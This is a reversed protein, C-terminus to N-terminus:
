ALLSHEQCGRKIYKVVILKTVCRLMANIAGGYVRLDSYVIIIVLKAECGQFMYEDTFLVGQFKMLDPLEDFDNSFYKITSLNLNEAVELLLDLSSEHYCEHPILVVIMDSLTAESVRFTMMEKLAKEFSLIDVGLMKETAPYVSVDFGQPFFQEDVKFDNSRYRYRVKEQVYNLIKGSNRMPGQLTMVEIAESFNDKDTSAFWFYGVARKAHLEFIDM